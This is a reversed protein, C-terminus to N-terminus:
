CRYAAASLAIDFVYFHSAAADSSILSLMARPSAALPARFRRFMLPLTLLSIAAYRIISLLTAYSFPLPMAAHRRCRYDPMFFVLM